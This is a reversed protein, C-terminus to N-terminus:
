YHGCEGKGLLLFPLGKCSWSRQYDASLIHCTEQSITYSLLAKLPPFAKEVIETLSM